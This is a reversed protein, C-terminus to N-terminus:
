KLAADRDADTVYDMFAEWEPDSMVSFWPKGKRREVLVAPPCLGCCRDRCAESDHLAAECSGCTITRDIQTSLKNGAMFRDCVPCIYKPAPQVGYEVYPVAKAHYEFPLHGNNAEGPESHDEISPWEDIPITRESM